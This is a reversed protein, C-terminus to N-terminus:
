RARRSTRAAASPSARSTARVRHRPRQSPRHRRPQRLGVGLRLLHGHGGRRCPDADGEPRRHRDGSPLTGWRMGFPSTIPGSVPWIFGAASATAATGTPQPPAEGATDNTTTSGSSADAARLGPHAGRDRARPRSRTRSRSRRRSRRRRSSYRTRNKHRRRERLQGQQDLLEDHIVAVQELRGHILNTEDAVRRKVHATQRRAVVVRHEATSVQQAITKDEKAILGLYNLEDM